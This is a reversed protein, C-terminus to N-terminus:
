RISDLVGQLIFSAAMKDVLGKRKKRSMDGEILTRTVAMTSMREDWLFIPINIKHHIKQALMQVKEAQPGISGNMNLPFGVVLAAIGFKERLDHIYHPLAKNNEVFEMPTAISWTIDSLSLGVWKDGIDLGLLRNHGTKLNKLEIINV